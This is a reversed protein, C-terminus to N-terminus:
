PRMGSVAPRRNLRVTDVSDLDHVEGALPLVVREVPRDGDCAAAARSRLRDALGARMAPEGHNLFVTAPRTPGADQPREFVFRALADVDGHGSYYDGFDVLRARVRAPEIRANGLALPQDDPWEGNALLRLRGAGTDPPAYGCLVVTAASNTIQDVIFDVIRGGECMGSGALAVMRSLTADHMARLTDGPTRNRRVRAWLASLYADVAHEDPLGLRLAMEPNRYVLRDDSPDPNVLTAAYVDTMRAALPADLSLWRPRGNTDPRGASTTRLVMDLDFWLEQARQIAFCPVVVPGGGRADSDDLLASGPRWGTKMRSTTRRDPRSTAM